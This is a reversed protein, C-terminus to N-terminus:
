ERRWTPRAGKKRLLEEIKTASRQLEVSAAAMQPQGSRQFAAVEAGTRTLVHLPPTAAKVRALTLGLPVADDGAISNVGAGLEVLLEVTPYDLRMCADHLHTYYDPPSSADVNLQCEKVLYRIVDRCTTAGSEFCATLIGLPKGERSRLPAGHRIMIKVLELHGETAAGQLAKVIHWQLFEGPKCKSLFEEFTSLEDAGGRTALQVLLSGQAMIKEAMGPTDRRLESIRVMEEAM